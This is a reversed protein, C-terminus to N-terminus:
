LILARALFIKRFDCFFLFSIGTRKKALVQHRELKELIESEQGADLSPPLLCFDHTTDCM